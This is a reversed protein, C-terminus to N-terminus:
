RTTRNSDRFLLISALDKASLLLSINSGLFRAVSPKRCRRTKAAPGNTLDNAAHEILGGRKGPVGQNLLQTVHLSRNDSENGDGEYLSCNDDRDHSCHLVTTPILQYGRAARPGRRSFIPLPPSRQNRVSRWDYLCGVIM